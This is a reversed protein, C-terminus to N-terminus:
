YVIVNGPLLVQFLWYEENPKNNMHSYKKAAENRHLGHMIWGIPGDPVARLLSLHKSGKTIKVPLGRNNFMEKWGDGTGIVTGPFSSRQITKVNFNEVLKDVHTDDVMRQTHHPALLSCDIFFKGLSFYGLHQLLFDSIAATSIGALVNAPIVPASSLVPWNDDLSAYAPHNSTSLPATNSSM